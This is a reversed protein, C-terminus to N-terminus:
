PIVPPPPPPPPTLPSRPMSLPMNILSSAVVAATVGEVRQTDTITDYQFYSVVTHPPPLICHIRPIHSYM